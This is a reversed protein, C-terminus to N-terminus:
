VTVPRPGDFEAGTSDLQLGFGLKICPCGTSKSAAWSQTKMRLAIWHMPLTPVTKGAQQKGSVVFVNSKRNLINGMAWRAIDVQCHHGIPVCLWSKQFSYGRSKRAAAAQGIANVTTGIAPVRFFSPAVAPWSLASFPMVVAHMLGDVRRPKGTTAWQPAPLTATSGMMRM